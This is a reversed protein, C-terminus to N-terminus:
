KKVQPESDVQIKRDGQIDATEKAVAAVDEESLLVTYDLTFFRSAGPELTPVRAFKREISRNYPFGTGPELGTVHGEKL